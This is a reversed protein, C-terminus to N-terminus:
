MLAFAAATGRVTKLGDGVGPIMILNRDGSGFSIYDMETTGMQITGNKAHYFM